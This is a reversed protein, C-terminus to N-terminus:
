EALAHAGGADAIDLAGRLHTRADEPRGEVFHAAGLFLLTVGYELRGVSDRLFDAAEELLEVREAGDYTSALDRTSWGLSTSTGWRRTLALQEEAAERAQSREGLAVLAAVLGPRWAFFVPNVAGMALAIRGAERFLPLASAADGRAMHLYGRASLLASFNQGEALEREREAPLALAREATALDGRAILSRVYVWLGGTVFQGWGYRQADLASELASVADSVNGRYMSTAGHGFMGSAFALVSGRRRAERVAGLFVADALDHQASFGFAPGVTYLGPHEPGLEDLLAGNGWARRAIDLTGELDEGRLVSVGALAALAAREDPTTPEGIERLTRVADELAGTGGAPDWLAAHARSTLLEQELEADGFPEDLGRAFAAVADGFRGALHLRRGADLLARARDAPDSLTALATELHEEAGGTDGGATLAGALAVLVRGRAESGAPEDLARRLLRAGGEADGIAVAKRGAVALAEFAWPEGIPPTELLHGAVHEAPESEESLLRAAAAHATAREGAPLAELIAQRVIPHAFAPRAADALLGAAALVSVQASAEADSV